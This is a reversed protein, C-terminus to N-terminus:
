IAQRIYTLDKGSKGGCHRNWDGFSLDAKVAKQETIIANFSNTGRYVVCLTGSDMRAATVLEFSAPNKLAAKLLKVKVVDAQFLREEEEEAKVQEPTRTAKAAAPTTSTQQSCMVVLLIVSGAFAWGFIGAPKRVKAGCSPCAKAETSVQNGCEHCKIIAM